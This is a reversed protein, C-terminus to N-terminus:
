AAGPAINHNRRFLNGPDVAQKLAALRALKEGSYVDPAASAPNEAGMFNVYQGGGSFPEADAAVGRVFATHHM